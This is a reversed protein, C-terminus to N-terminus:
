QKTMILPTGEGSWLTMTKNDIEGTYVYDGGDLFINIIPKDYIYTGVWPYGEDDPWLFMCMSESTFQLSVLGDEDIGTWKTGLLAHAKECSTLSFSASLLVIATVINAILRKM